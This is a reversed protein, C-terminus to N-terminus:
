KVPAVPVTSSAASCTSYASALLELGAVLKLGLDAAPYAADNPRPMPYTVPPSYPQLALQGYHVHTLTVSAECFDRPPFHRWGSILRDANADRNLLAYVAAPIVHPATTLVHAALAPVLCRTSYSAPCLEVRLETVVRQFVIQFCVSVAPYANPTVFTSVRKNSSSLHTQM